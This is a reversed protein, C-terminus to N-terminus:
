DPWAEVPDDEGRLVKGKTMNFESRIKDIILDHSRRDNRELKRHIAWSCYDAVQICPETDAPVIGVRFEAGEVCQNFVDDLAAQLETVKQKGIKIQAVIVFLQDHGNLVRPVVYKAHYFWATKYFRSPNDALYQHVRRKDWYTTDIRFQHDHLVAFVRDRISQRDHTAHFAPQVAAGQWMLERRLGSLADGLAYDDCTVTTISFFKSGGKPGGVNTFTLDGSEDAFIHTRTM